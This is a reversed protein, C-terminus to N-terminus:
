VEGVWAVEEEGLLQQPASTRRACVVAALAASLTLEVANRVLLAVTRQGVLTRQAEGVDAGLRLVLDEEREFEVERHGIVLDHTQAQPLSRERRRSVRPLRRNQARRWDLKGCPLVWLHRARAHQLQLVRNAKRDLRVVAADVERRGHLVAGELSERVREGRLRAGVACM